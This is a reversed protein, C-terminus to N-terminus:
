TGEQALLLSPKCKISDFVSEGSLLFTVVPQEDVKLTVSALKKGEQPHAIDVEEPPYISQLAEFEEALENAM